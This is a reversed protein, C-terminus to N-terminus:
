TIGHRMLYERQIRLVEDRGSAGAYMELLDKNLKLFTGGWKFKGLIELAQDKFGCIYLASAIAEASSLLSIRAYNIPNGAKLAPLVRREPKRFSKVILAIRDLDRNWSADIVTVGGREIFSRDCPALVTSSTPDLVVSHKPVDRPRVRLALGLRVLKLATSLKPNDGGIRVVYIRVVM